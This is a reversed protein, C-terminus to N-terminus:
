MAALSKVGALAIERALANGKLIAGLAAGYYFLLGKASSQSDIPARLRATWQEALHTYRDDGPAAATLLSIQARGKGRSKLLGSGGQRAVNKTGSKTRFPAPAVPKRRKNACPALIVM